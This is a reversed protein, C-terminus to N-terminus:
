KIGRAISLKDFLTDLPESGTIDPSQQLPQMIVEILDVMSEHLMPFRFRVKTKVHFLICVLDTSASWTSSRTHELEVNIIQSLRMLDEIVSRELKPSKKLVADIHTNVAIMEMRSQCKMEYPVCTKSSCSEVLLESVKRRYSNSAAFQNELLQQCVGYLAPESGVPLIEEHIMELLAARNHKHKGLMRKAETAERLHPPTVLSDKLPTRKEICIALTLKKKLLAALENMQNSM